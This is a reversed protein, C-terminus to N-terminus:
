ITLRTPEFLKLDWNFENLLTDKGLDVNEAVEDTGSTPICSIVTAGDVVLGQVLDFIEDVKLAIEEAQNGEETYISLKLKYDCLQGGTYVETQENKVSIVVYPRPYGSPLRTNSLRGAFINTLDNDSLFIDRISKHVSQTKM